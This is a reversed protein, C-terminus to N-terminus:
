AVELLELLSPMPETAPRRNILGARDKRRYETNAATCRQCRCGHVYASRTGHVPLTAGSDEYVRELWDTGGWIGMNDPDSLAEALCAVRVPCAACIARCEAEQAQTPDIWDLDTRGSCAASVRWDAM